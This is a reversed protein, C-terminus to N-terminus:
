QLERFFTTEGREEVQYTYSTGPSANIKGRATREM